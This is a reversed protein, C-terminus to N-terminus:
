CAPSPKTSPGTIASRASPVSGSAAPPWARWAWPLFSSSAVARREAAAGIAAAAVGGLVIAGEGGIVVLGLRAPLAVCLAALLLPAAAVALEPDLVLSGFGGRWMTEYLQVPSKGVALIFLSFLSWASSWRRSRFLSPKRGGRSGNSRRRIDGPVSCDGAREASSTTDTM